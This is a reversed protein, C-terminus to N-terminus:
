PELAAPAGESALARRLAADLGRTDVGAARRLAADASGAAIAAVLRARTAPTTRALIWEAAAASALYAGDAGEADLGQFGTVLSELPIWRGDRARARLEARESRTLGALGRARRGALEALGENLWYPRDGGSRERFFAHVLEHFLLARLEAGPRAASSVHIEGDFFGVTPFTFRDAHVDRYAARGYLVVGTPESPAFGLRAAADSRAEALHALVTQALGPSAEALDADLRLRFAGADLDLTRLPSGPAHAAALRDEAELAELRRRASERWSAHADGANSLFARLHEEASRHRGRQRELLALYWHAEASGPSDALVSELALQARGTEGRALDDAADRLLRALRDDGSSTSGAEPALPPGAVSGGWLGGREPEPVLTAGDPVSAADNTVHTAGREDIWVFTDAAAVGACLCLAALARPLTSRPPPRRPPPPAM